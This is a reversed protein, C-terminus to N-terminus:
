IFYIYLFSHSEGQRTWWGFKIFMFINDHQSGIKNKFSSIYEFLCFNKRM